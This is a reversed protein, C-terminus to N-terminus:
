RDKVSSSTKLPTSRGLSLLQGMTAVEVSTAVVAAGSTCGINFGVRSLSAGFYAPHSLTSHGDQSTNAAPSIAWGATLGFNFPIDQCSMCVIGIFQGSQRDFAENGGADGGGASNNTNLCSGVRGQPKALTVAQRLIGSTMSILWSIGTPMTDMPSTNVGPMILTLELWTILSLMVPSTYMSVMVVEKPLTMSPQDSGFSPGTMSSM